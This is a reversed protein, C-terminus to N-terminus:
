DLKVKGGESEIVDFMSSILEDKEVTGLGLNNTCYQSVAIKALNPALAGTETLNHNQFIILATQHINSKSIRKKDLVLENPQTMTKKEKAFQLCKSLQKRKLKGSKDVVDNVEALVSKQEENTMKLDFECYKQM